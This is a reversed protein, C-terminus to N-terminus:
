VTYNSLLEQQRFYCRLTLLSDYGNYLLLTEPPLNELQNIGMETTKKMAEDVDDDYGIVGFHIFSTTKLGAMGPQANFVRAGVCVDWEWNLTETGFHVLGWHHEFKINAGIKATSAQLFRKWAAIIRKNSNFSFSVTTIYDKDNCYAISATLVTPKTKLTINSRAVEPHLCNTEYDFATWKSISAVEISTIIEREDSIIRVDSRCIPKPLPEQLLPYLDKLSKVGCDINIQQLYYISNATAEAESAVPVLWANWPEGNYPMVLPIAYGNFKSTTYNAPFHGPNYCRLVAGTAVGGITVIIKPKLKEIDSQLDALCCEYQRKTDESSYCRRVGTTWCDNFVSNIGWEDCLTHFAWQGQGSDQYGLWSREQDQYKTPEDLVIMIRKEGKGVTPIKRTEDRPCKGCERAWFSKSARKRPPLIFAM